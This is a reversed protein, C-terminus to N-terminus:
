FTRKAAVVSAICYKKIKTRRTRLFINLQKIEYEKILRRVESQILVGNFFLKRKKMEISVLNLDKDKKWGYLQITKESKMQYHNMTRKRGIILAYISSSLGNIKVTLTSKM